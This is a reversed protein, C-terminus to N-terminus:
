VRRASGLRRLGRCSCASAGVGWEGATEATKRSGRSQFHQLRFLATALVATAAAHAVARVRRAVSRSFVIIITNHRLFVLM